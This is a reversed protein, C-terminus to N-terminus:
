GSADPRVSGSSLSMARSTPMRVPRPSRGRSGAGDNPEDAALLHPVSYSSLQGSRERVRRHIWLWAALDGLIWGAMLWIAALGTAYTFGIVGIFMYGSNNTAAGMRTDIIRVNAEIERNSGVPTFM